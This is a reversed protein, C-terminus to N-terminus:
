MWLKGRGNSEKSNTMNTSPLEEFRRLSRANSLSKFTAICPVVRALSRPLLKGNAAPGCSMFFVTSCMGTSCLLAGVKGVEGANRYSLNSGNGFNMLSGGHRMSRNRKCGHEGQSLNRWVRRCEM